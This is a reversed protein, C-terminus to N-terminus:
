CSKKGPESFRFIIGSVDNKNSGNTSSVCVHVCEDSEDRTSKRFHVEKTEKEGGDEYM